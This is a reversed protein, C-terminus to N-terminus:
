LLGKTTEFHLINQTERKAEKTQYIYLHTCLIYFIQVTIILRSHSYVYCRVVFQNIKKYVKLAMAVACYAAVYM